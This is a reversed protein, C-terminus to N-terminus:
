QGRRTLARLQRANRLSLLFAAAALLFSLGVLVDKVTVRSSRDARPEGAPPADENSLTEVQEASKGRALDAEPIDLEARHGAGAYVVVKLPEARTFSFVFVGGENLQGSTLLQKDARFVEVTAGKPPDGTTDFWSEIQVKQDPLVRYEAVLRHARAPRAVTLTTLLGLLAVVLLAATPRRRAWKVARELACVPRARIPSGAVLRRLGDAL